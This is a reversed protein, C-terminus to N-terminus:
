RSLYYYQSKSSYKGFNTEDHRVSVLKLTKDAQLLRNLLILPKELMLGNKRTGSIKEFETLSGTRSVSQPSGGGGSFPSSYIHSMRSISGESSNEWVKHNDGNMTPAGSSETTRKMEADYKERDRYVIVRSYISTQGDELYTIYGSAQKDRDNTQSFRMVLVPGKMKEVRNNEAAIVQVQGVLMILTLLRLLM